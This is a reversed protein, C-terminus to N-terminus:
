KLLPELVNQLTAFSQPGIVMQGNIDLTPRTRIGQERRYQDQATVSDVYRQEDICANFQAADLGLEAALTKITQRIDGRWLDGQREFLLDHLAWFRGQEAACEAAQHAQVSRDGHDLIPNFVLKAQGTKVYAEKLQPETGLM